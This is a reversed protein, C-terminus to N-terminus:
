NHKNYFPMMIFRDTHCKFVVRPQEKEGFLMISSYPNKEKILNAFKCPTSEGRGIKAFAIRNPEEISSEELKLIKVNGGFVLIEYVDRMKKLNISNTKNWDTITDKM